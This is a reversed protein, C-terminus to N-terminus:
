SSLRAILDKASEAADVLAGVQDRTGRSPEMM